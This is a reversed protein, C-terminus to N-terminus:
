SRPVRPRDQPSGSGDPSPEPTPDGVDFLTGILEFVREAEPSPDVLEMIQHTLAITGGRAKVRALSERGRISDSALPTRLLAGPASACGSGTIRRGWPPRRYALGHRTMGSTPWTEWWPAPQGLLDLQPTQWDGLDPNWVAFPMWVASRQDDSM